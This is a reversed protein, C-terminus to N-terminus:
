ERRNGYLGVMWWGDVAVSESSIYTFHDPVDSRRALWPSYKDKRRFSHQSMQSDLIDGDTIGLPVGLQPDVSPSVCSLTLGLRPHSAHCSM